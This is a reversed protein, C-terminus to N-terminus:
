FGRFLRFGLDGFRVRSHNLRQRQQRLHRGARGRGNTSTPTNLPAAAPAAAFDEATRLACNLKSM